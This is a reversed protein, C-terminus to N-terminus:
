RKVYDPKLGNLKDLLAPLFGDPLQASVPLYWIDANLDAPLKVADKETLLLPRGSGTLQELLARDFLCHDPLPTEGSVDGGLERVLNFFRQPNGIGAALDVRGLAPITTETKHDKVSRPQDPQLLMIHRVPKSSSSLGGNQVVFDVENLRSAGERLPGAPLLYGNGLLRQGDVVAIEIARAMRYHQLGDDSIVLDVQHKNILMEIAAVRDAGVVVPVGTRRHILLPEDGVEDARSKTSVPFPYYPAKAGYGRSVVGVKYGQATLKECLWIVLPTKGTGGVSINGVVIVPVPLEKQNFRCVYSRRLKSV